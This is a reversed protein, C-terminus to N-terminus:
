GRGTPRLRRAFTGHREWRIAWKTCATSCRSSTTARAVTRRRPRSRWGCVTPLAPRRRGSGRRRSRAQTTTSASSGRTRSRRRWSSRRRATAAASTQSRPVASSSRSSARSRPCGHPSSTRTYGPPFFRECGEHVDRVHEDRGFGEGSRFAQEIQPSDLVAGLALQFFGPLFAPSEANTLALAQEPPLAYRGSAPDYSVYGGAAQANLWERVYRDATGTQQALETPTLAGSTALARYLGLRDGIVVLVTNLTSSVEEVARYIFQELREPDLATQEEIAAIAKRRSVNDGRGYLRTAANADPPM